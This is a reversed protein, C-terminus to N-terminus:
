FLITIATTPPFYNSNTGFLHAPILTSKHDAPYFRGYVQELRRRVYAHVQEYLPRLEHLLGDMTAELSDDEFEEIWSESLDAYGSERAAKNNLRVTNTYIHRMRGGSESHWGLWARKLQTYNRSDRMLTTLGPELSLTKGDVM